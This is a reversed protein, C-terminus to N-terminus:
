TDHVHTDWPHSQVEDVNTSHREEGEDARQQSHWVQQYAVEPFTQSPCFHVRQPQQRKSCAVM